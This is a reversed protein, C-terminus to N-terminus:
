IIMLLILQTMGYLDANPRIHTQLYNRRPDPYMSGVIRRVVQM